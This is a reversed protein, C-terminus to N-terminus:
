DQAGLLLRCVLHLRSQLESTHEESRSFHLRIGGPDELAHALDLRIPGVPSVWRVGVGVGTKLSPMELTNFSNGQDIFTAIRWKEAISYQYEASLAVMYRGGIRDGRDNEPSLTQYEYGRVSQDGGAFFRLSPPVSKYGNTASGGIALIIRQAGADLAARILEGTGYTTTKCADRQGTPVLQLGSAEAMEIIATHSDALWGWHAEVAVGLPGRVSHHRLEGNCAALVSDVTGEGGDAM